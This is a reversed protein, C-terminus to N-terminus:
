VARFPRGLLPLDRLPGWIELRSPAFPSALLLIGVLMLNPSFDITMTLATMLHFGLLGAAWLRHLRPRFAAVLAFLQIYLTALMMPWLWVGYEIMWSGLISSPYTQLLRDAIHRALASPHLPTIEFRAAQYAAGLFKGLGALSYTLCLMTQAAQFVVQAHQRARRSAQASHFAEDPLFAAFLFSTYLWGHMLHHVKGFSFQLGLVQFLGLFFLVRVARWEPVMAAAGATLLGFGVVFKGLLALDGAAMWAVPWALMPSRPELLPSLLHLHTAYWFLPFAYFVRLLAEIQNSARRHEQLVATVSSPRDPSALRRRLRGVPQEPLRLHQEDM